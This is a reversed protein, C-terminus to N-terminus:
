VTLFTRLRAISDRMRNQTQQLLNIAQQIRQETTSYKSPVALTNIASNLEGSLDTANLLRHAEALFGAWGVSVESLKNNLERATPM